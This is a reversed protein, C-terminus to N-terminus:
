NINKLNTRETRSSRAWADPRSSLPPLVWIRPRPARAALSNTAAPKSGTWAPTTRPSAKPM